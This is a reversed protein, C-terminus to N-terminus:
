YERLNHLIYMYDFVLTYNASKHVYVADPVRSGHFYLKLPNIKRENRAEMKELVCSQRM